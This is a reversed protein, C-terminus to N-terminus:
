FRPARLISQRASQTNYLVYGMSGPSLILEKVMKRFLLASKFWSSHNFIIDHLLSLFRDGGGKSHVTM